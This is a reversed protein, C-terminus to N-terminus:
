DALSVVLRCNDCSSLCDARVFVRYELCIGTANGVGDSSASGNAFHSGSSTCSAVWANPSGPKVSGCLEVVDSKEAASRRSM